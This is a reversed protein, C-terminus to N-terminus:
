LLFFFGWCYSASSNTIYLSVKDCRVYAIGPVLDCCPTPYCYYCVLAILGLVLCTTLVPLNLAPLFPFTPFFPFDIPPLFYILHAEPRFFAVFSFTTYVPPQFHHFFPFFSIPHQPTSLLHLLPTFCFLFSDLFSPLLTKHSM